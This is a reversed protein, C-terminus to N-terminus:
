KRKMEMPLTATFVTGEKRDSNVEIKGNMKSVLNKVIALGLSHGTNLGCVKDAVTNKATLMLIPTNIKSQRVRQLVSIGDMGPLMIDLIVLDYSEEKIYYMADSGNEVADTEYGEDRLIKCIANLILPEDEVVLGRM